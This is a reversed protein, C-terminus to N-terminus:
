LLLCIKICRDLVVTSFLGESPKVVITVTTRRNQRDIYVFRASTFTIKVLNLFQCGTAESLGLSFARVIADDYSTAQEIKKKV